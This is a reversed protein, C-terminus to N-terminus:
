SREFRRLTLFDFRRKFYVFERHYLALWLFITGSLVVSFALLTANATFEWFVSGTVVLIFILLITNFYFQIGENTESKNRFIHLVSAVITTFEPLISAEGLFKFLPPLLAISLAQLLATYLVPKRLEERLLVTTFSIQFFMTVTFWMSKIIQIFTSLTFSKLGTTLELVLSVLFNNFFVLFIVGVNFLNKNVWVSESKEVLYSKIFARFLPLLGLTLAGLNIWIAIVLSDFSPKMLYISAGLYLACLLILTFFLFSAKIAKQADVCQRIVRSLVYSTGIPFLWLAVNM